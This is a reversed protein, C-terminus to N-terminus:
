IPFPLSPWFIIKKPKEDGPLPVETFCPFIPLPFTPTMVELVHPPSWHDRGGQGPGMTVVGRPVPRSAPAICSLFPSHFVWAGDESLFLLLFFNGHSLVRPNEEHPDGM